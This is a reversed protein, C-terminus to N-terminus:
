TNLKKKFSTEGYQDAKNEQRRMWQRESDIKKWLPHPMSKTPGRGRQHSPASKLCLNNNYRMIQKGPKGAWLVYSSIGFWIKM